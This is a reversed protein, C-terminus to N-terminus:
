RRLSNGSSAKRKRPQPLSRLSPHLQGLLNRNAFLQRCRCKTLARRSSKLRPLKLIMLKHCRSLNKRKTVPRHRGTSSADRPEAPEHSEEPNM